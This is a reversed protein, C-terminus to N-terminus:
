KFFQSFNFMTELVDASKSPPLFYGPVTLVWGNRMM